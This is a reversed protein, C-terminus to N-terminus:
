TMSFSLVVLVGAIASFGLLSMIMVEVETRNIKAVKCFAATSPFGLAFAQFAWEGAALNRRWALRFVLIAHLTHVICAAAFICLLITSVHRSVKQEDAASLLSFFDVFPRPLLSVSGKELAKAAIMGFIQKFLRSATDVVGYPNRSIYYTFAIGPPAVMWPLYGLATVHGNFGKEKYYAVAEKMGESTNVVPSFGLEKKILESSYYNHKVVKRVDAVTLFPEFNFIPQLLMSLGQAVVAVPYLVFGPLPVYPDSTLVSSVLSSSTKSTKMNKKTTTKSDEKKQNDVDDFNVMEEATENFVSRVVRECCSGKEPLMALKSPFPSSFGLLTLMVSFFELTHAAWGDTVFYAKGSIKKRYSPDDLRQMGLIFAHALNDRHTFDTLANPAVAMLPAFGLRAMLLLKPTHHMEGPGWIGNPRISLTALKESTAARVAKEALAKSESYADNWPGDRAITELDEERGLQVDQGQFVVGTSSALLLNRVSAEDKCAQILNITGQVNVQLLRQRSFVSTLNYPVIAALHFVTSCGQVANKVQEFNTVDCLVYEAGEVYAEAVAPISSSRSPLRVDVARVRYQGTQVLKRVLHSAGYGCAGTVLVLPLNRSAKIGTISNNNNENVLTNKESVSSSVVKATSGRRRVSPM